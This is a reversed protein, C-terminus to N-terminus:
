KGQQSLRTQGANTYVVIENGNGEWWSIHNWMMPLTTRLQVFAIHDLDYAVYNKIRCYSGFVINSLEM